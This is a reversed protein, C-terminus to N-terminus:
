HSGFSPDVVKFQDDRKRLLAGQGLSCLTHAHRLRGYRFAQVYDFPTQLEIEKLDVMAARINGLGAAEECFIRLLTHIEKVTANMKGSPDVVVGSLTANTSQSGAISTAALLMLLLCRDCLRRAPLEELLGFHYQNM